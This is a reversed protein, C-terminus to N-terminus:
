RSAAPLGPLLSIVLVRRRSPPSTTMTVAAPIVSVAHLWPGLEGCTALKPVLLAWLEPSGALPVLPPALEAPAPDFPLAVWSTSLHAAQM